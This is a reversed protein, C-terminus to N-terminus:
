QTPICNWSGTKTPTLYPAPKFHPAMLNTNKNVSYIILM